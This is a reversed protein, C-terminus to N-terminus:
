PTNAQGGMGSHNTCYYYLTPAGSAVVIQTYAGANGPTGVTTVGTTYEVGGAHTGNSTTSFRLPHGSNSSDSQDFLYTSGESLNVTPAETSDFYYKNGGGYGASAVTVITSSTVNVLLNPFGVEGTASSGTVPITEVIDGTITVTGVAGAAANPSTVSATFTLASAAGTIGTASVGTANVLSEDFSVTVRGVSATMFQAPNWVPGFGFLQRSAELATDPRANTLNQPDFIRVRGLFNQPHDDDAVDRGVRLGTKVGNKYEDVLDNLPYRFGTRDCFGFAYRNSASRM